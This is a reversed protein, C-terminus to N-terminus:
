HTDHDGSLLVCLGVKKGTLKEMKGPLSKTFESKGRGPSSRIELTKGAMLMPVIAKDLQTLNM